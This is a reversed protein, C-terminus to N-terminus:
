TTSSALAFFLITWSPHAYLFPLFYLVLFLVMHLSVKMWPLSPFLFLWCIVIVCSLILSPPLSHPSDPCSLCYLLCNLSLKRLLALHCAYLLWYCSCAWQVECNLLSATYYVTETSTPKPAQRFANKWRSILCKRKHLPPPKGWLLDVTYYRSYLVVM